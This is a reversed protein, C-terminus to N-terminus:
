RPDGGMLDNVEGEWECLTAATFLNRRDITVSPVSVKKDLLAWYACARHWEGACRRQIVHRADPDILYLVLRPPIARERWHDVWEQTVPFQLTGKQRFDRSYSSKLQVGVEVGALTVLRDLAKVDPAQTAVTRQAAGVLADFLGGTYREM